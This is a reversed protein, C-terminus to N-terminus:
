RASSLVEVTMYLSLYQKNPFGLSIYLTNICPRLFYSHLTGDTHCSYNSGDKYQVFEWVIKKKLNLHHPSPIYTRKVLNHMQGYLCYKLPWSLMVNRPVLYNAMRLPRCTWGTQWWTIIKQPFIHLLFFLKCVSSPSGSIMLCATNATETCSWNETIQEGYTQSNFTM